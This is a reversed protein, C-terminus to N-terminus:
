EDVNFFLVQQCEMVTQEFFEAQQVSRPFGDLLYNKSPNAILANVLIQVTLEHPVLGGEAM